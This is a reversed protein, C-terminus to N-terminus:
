KSAEWILGCNALAYAAFVLAWASEGEVIKDIAVGFYILTVVVLLFV